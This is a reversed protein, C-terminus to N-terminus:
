DYDGYYADLYEELQKVIKLLEPNEQTQKELYPVTKSVLEMLNDLKNM